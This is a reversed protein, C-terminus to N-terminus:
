ADIAGDIKSNTLLQLPYHQIKNCIKSHQNSKM